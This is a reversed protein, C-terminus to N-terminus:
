FVAVMNDLFSIFSRVLPGETLEDVVQLVDERWRDFSYFPTVDESKSEGTFSHDFCVFSHGRRSAMEELVAAKELVIRQKNQGAM